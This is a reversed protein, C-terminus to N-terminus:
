TDCSGNRGCLSKRCEAWASKEPMNVELRNIIPLHSAALRLTGKGILLCVISASHTAEEQRLQRLSVPLLRHRSRTGIM